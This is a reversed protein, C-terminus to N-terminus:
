AFADCFADFAPEDLTLEAPSAPDGVPFSKEVTFSVSEHFLLVDVGVTVTAVGYVRAGRTDDVYGLAVEFEVSLTVVDLVTLQGGCRLFGELRVTEGLIFTIGGMAYVHGEAVVVAIAFDGGFELSAEVTKLEKSTAELAVYGGGGFIGVGLTFPADRRGFNFRVSSPASTFPVRVHAGLSVNSWASCGFGFDPLAM